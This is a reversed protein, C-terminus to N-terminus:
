YIVPYYILIRRFGLAEILRALRGRIITDGITNSSSGLGYTINRIVNLHPFLRFEQTMYGVRRQHTPVSVGGAGDYIVRGGIEIKGGVPEVLGAIAKLTTTKGSGSPGFLVMIEGPAVEWDTALDFSGIRCKISGRSMGNVKATGASVTM